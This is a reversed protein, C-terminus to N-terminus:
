EKDVVLSLVDKKSRGFIIPLGLYRSHSVVTKIGMWNQIFEKVEDHINRICIDELKDLNVVQVSAKQYRDLTIMLCNAKNSNTRGFLLCDDAFFFFLFLM